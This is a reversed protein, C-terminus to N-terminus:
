PNVITTKDKGARKMRNFQIKWFFDTAIKSFVFFGLNGFRVYGLNLTKEASCQNLVFLISVSRNM